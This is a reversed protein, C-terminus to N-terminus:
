LFTTYHPSYANVDCYSYHLDGTFMVIFKTHEVGTCPAINVSVYCVLLRVGIFYQKIRTHCGSSPFVNTFLLIRCFM